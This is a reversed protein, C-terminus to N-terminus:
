LFLMKEYKIGSKILQKVQKELIPLQKSSITNKGVDADIYFGTETLTVGDIKINTNKESIISSLILGMLYNIRENENITKM